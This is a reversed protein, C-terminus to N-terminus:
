QQLYGLNEQRFRIPEIELVEYTEASDCTNGALLMTLQDQTLPFSEYRELLAAALRVPFVPVPVTLKRRGCAAAITAIIERWSLADPGCLGFTKGEAASTGLAQVFAKAVDTVGVPALQYAGAHTPLLGRYFMPAPAPPLILQDRLQTCFEMRGRPNGFIVSPRFITYALGSQRLHEEAALKTKQYPTARAEVGNASMLVFRPVGLAVAADMCLTAAQHQLAEYTIGRRPFERLIGVNFIAAECGTLTERLAGEDAVSGSVQECAESQRVRGESGPRVLVRPRHGRAVLEDILYSGVFGTGGILGVKM